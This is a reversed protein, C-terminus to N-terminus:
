RGCMEMSGWMSPRVLDGRWTPMWPTGALAQMFGVALRLVVVPALRQPHPLPTHLFFFQYFSQFIFLSLFSRALASVALPYCSLKKRTQEIKKREELVQCTRRVTPSVFPFTDPHLPPVPISLCSTSFIVCRWMRGVNNNCEDKSVLHSLVSGATKLSALSFSPHRVSTKTHRLNHRQCRAVAM